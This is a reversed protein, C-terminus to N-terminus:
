PPAAKRSGLLDGERERVEHIFVMSNWIEYAAAGSGGGIFGACQLSQDCNNTDLLTGCNASEPGHITGSVSQTFIMGDPKDYDNWVELVDAWADAGDMMSWREQPTLGKVNAVSQDDCDIDTWNGTRDGESYPDVGIKISAKFSSWSADTNPADNYTELDSAWNTTGGMSLGQYLATRESRIDDDMFAVWQTDDYVIIRSNSNTDVYDQNVRSQRTSLPSANGNIIDYIEADSIYGATATCPGETADSVAATGTYLCDATHCDASAMAFSRGYSSVGVIVKSSAVGAKTVQPINDAALFM